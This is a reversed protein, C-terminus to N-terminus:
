GIDGSFRRDLVRRQVRFGAIVRFTQLLNDLGFSGIRHLIDDGTLTGDGTEGMEDGEDIELTSGGLGINESGGLLKRMSRLAELFSRGGSNMSVWLSSVMEMETRRLPLRLDASVEKLLVSVFHLRRDISGFSYIFRSSFAFDM